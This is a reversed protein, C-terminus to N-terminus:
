RAMPAVNVGVLSARNIAQQVLGSAKIEEVYRRVYAIGAARGKTVAVAHQVASFRGKLVRSGPLRASVATLLQRNEAFADAQGSRLIELAAAAGGKGRVLVANKLSRSLFLDPASKEPVAVRIGPRDIESINTIRSNAPVLYTNDVEMYPASFDMEATRAPDFALFAVEWENAKASEVLKAVTPYGVAEFAVGLRLALNKGLDVAVGRLEGSAADKTVLVPNALILGVRLKGTPALAHRAQAPANPSAAGDSFLVLTFTAALVTNVLIQFRNHFRMM